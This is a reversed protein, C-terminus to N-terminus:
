LWRRVRRCYAQYEVGFRRSLYAEERKILRNVVLLAPLLLILPWLANALLAIGGHLLAGALYVPNRSFRFPGSDILSTSAQSLHGTTRARRFSVIASVLFCLSLVLLVWGSLHVVQLARASAVLDVPFLLHLAFGAAMGAFYALPPPFPVDAGATDPQPRVASELWSGRRDM